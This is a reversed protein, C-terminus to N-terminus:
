AFGQSVPRFVPIAEVPIPSTPSPCSSTAVSCPRSGTTATALPNLHNLHKQNLHRIGRSAFMREISSFRKPDHVDLSDKADTGNDSVLFIPRQHPPVRSRQPRRFIVGSGRTLHGGVREGSFLTGISSSSGKRQMKHRRPRHETHPRRPLRPPRGDENVKADQVNLRPTKLEVMVKPSPLASARCLDLIHQPAGPARVIRGNGPAM